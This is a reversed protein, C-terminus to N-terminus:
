PPTINSVTVIEDITAADVFYPKLEARSCVEDLIEISECHGFCVRQAVSDTFREDYRFDQQIETWSPHYWIGPYLSGKAVGKLVSFDVIQLQSAGPQVKQLYQALMPSVVLQRARAFHSLRFGADINPGIFDIPRGTESEAVDNGRAVIDDSILRGILQAHRMALDPKLKARSWSVIPAIWVMGKVSITKGEDGYERELEGIIARLCNFANGAVTLLEQSSVVRKLLLIEDGLVKWVSTGAIFAQGFDEAIKYFYAIVSPWQKFRSKLATSGVLDYSIYCFLDLRKAQGGL